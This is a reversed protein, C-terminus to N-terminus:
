ALISKVVHGHAENLVPKYDFLGQPTIGYDESLAYTAIGHNYGGGHSGPMGKGNTPTKATLWQIAKQVTLGFEESYEDDNM